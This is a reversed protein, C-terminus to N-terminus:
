RHRANNVGTSAAGDVGQRGAQVEWGALSAGVVARPETTIHLTNHPLRLGLTALIKACETLIERFASDIHLDGALGALRQGKALRLLLLTEGRSLFPSSAPFVELGERRAHARLADLKQESLRLFAPVFWDAPVSSGVQIAYGQRIPEGRLIAVIKREVTRRRALPLLPCTM